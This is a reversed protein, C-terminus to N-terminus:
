RAFTPTAFLLDEALARFDIRDRLPDLDADSTFNDRSEPNRFYGVSEALRLLAVARAQRAPDHASTIAMVCAANYLLSGDRAAPGDVLSEAESAAREASGSLALTRARRVKTAPIDDADALEIAKERDSLAEPFAGLHELADARRAFSKGLIDRARAQAPFRRLVPELVAIGRTLRGRASPFDGATLDLRAFNLCTGGLEVAFNTRDPYKEILAEYNSLAEQYERRAAEVQGREVQLLGLNMHTMAVLGRHVPQDPHDRALEEYIKRAERYSAEAEDLRDLDGLFNGVNMLSIALEQRSEVVDPHEEALARRIDRSEIGTALAEANRDLSYYLNALNSLTAALEARFMVDNPSGEVLSRRLKLAEKHAAEAEALKGEEVRLNARMNFARALGRKHRPSDPFREVLRKRIALAERNERDADAARGKESDLVCLNHHVWGLGNLADENDPDTALRGSELGGAKRFRAEAEDSRGLGSVLNALAIETDALKGRVEDRAPHEPFERDLREFTTEARRYATEAEATRGLKELIDGADYSASAADALAEASDSQPRVFEEHFKLAAEVIERQTADMGRIDPLKPVVKAFMASVVKRSEELNRAAQDRQGRAEEAFRDARDKQSLAEARQRDILVTGVGLSVTSLVLGVAAVAVRTRHKRAWRAVRGLLPEAFASVPEDAMFRELDEALARASPYRDETRRAMAKLVIAELARPVDRRVNRPAPFEARRARSMAEIADCGSIPARGTVIAYLTAGLSFIDSLPGVSDTRGEAQEPSMFAPTGVVTGAATETSGGSLPRFPGDTLTTALLDAAEPPPEGKGTLVKALGWDVVLTEGYPGLMINGPKLDRHVIGRSHAYGIAECVDVFRSLLKRLGLSGGAPDDEGAQYHANIADRLSEGRVFRMAYFPRGSVDRGLGYVPVIGPHELRGTVEAELLFRSRAEPSDAFREQIEKLAVERNLEEDIALSVQGLAGRAHPRVIRYRSRGPEPGERRGSVSPHFQTAEPDLRFSAAVRAIRSAVEERSDGWSELEPPFGLARLSESPLGGHAELHAEVLTELLDLQRPSIDGGSVLAPGLGEPVTTAWAAAAEALSEGAVLGVQRALLGLLLDRRADNPPMLRRRGAKLAPSENTLSQDPKREIM